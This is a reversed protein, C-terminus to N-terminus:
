ESFKTFSFFTVGTFHDYKDIDFIDEIAIEEKVMGNHVIHLPDVRQSEGKM